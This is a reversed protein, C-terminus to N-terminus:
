TPLDFGKLKRFMDVAYSDTMGAVFDAVQLLRVYPDPDPEGHHGLFQTPLLKMLMRERTTFRTGEVGAAAEVADTFLGLLAGLVEFGATEIELAPRATYITEKALKLVAQLPVAVPSQELLEEDFEGDLIATENELFVAAASELLRGIAKARLYEIREKPRTVYALKRQARDAAGTLPLLLDRVEEYRLQQLRFADEVDIIRYCIDDAAEVAFVLPHRRYWGSGAYSECPLGLTAAVEDFLGMEANFIGFKKYPLVAPGATKLAQYTAATLPYKTFAGLTAKSLRM